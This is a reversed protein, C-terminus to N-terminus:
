GISPTSLLWLGFVTYGIMLLAMPIQSITARRASGHLRWAVLHALMVALVHGAIIAAAQANWIYWAADSGLVIGAQVHRIATGFLDWGLFFPDSFSAIAYQGDVLLATLYHAFHYALSIPVIAWVLLGAAKVWDRSGALREGLWVTGLFLGSLLVFMLVLGITNPVVVVSRGPFELPNIGIFANWTFTHMLGDFSVSSLALLLFAVGSLPLPRAKILKSGPWGIFIANGNGLPKAAFPSIQAIMRMFVSLFEMRETWVEYGFLIMGCFSFLWYVTVATALIAPDEPAIFILEFWAFCLFLLVAPRYGVAAPMTLYGGERLGLRVLLRWPGYWPNLWAWLNGTLGQALTLGIWLLTWLVLPLPNALPDRSGKFGAYILAAAFLFSLMSAAARGDFPLRLLFKRKEMLRAFPEPPVMLLVLFSVAVTIAGGMLYHQTPLLLVHGRNSAHAFAEGSLGPLVIGALLLFLLHPLRSTM